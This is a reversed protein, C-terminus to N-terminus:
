TNIKKGQDRMKGSGSVSAMFTQNVECTGGHALESAAQRSLHNDNKSTSFKIQNVLKWFTEMQKGNGFFSITVRRRPFTLHAEYRSADNQKVATIFYGKEGDLNLEGDKVITYHMKSLGIAYDERLEIESMLREKRFEIILGGESPFEWLILSNNDENMTFDYPVRLIMGGFSVEEPHRLYLIGLTFLNSIRYNALKDIAAFILFALVFSLVVGQLKRKRPSRLNDILNGM